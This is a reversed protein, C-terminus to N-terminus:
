RKEVREMLKKDEARYQSLCNSVTKSDRYIEWFAVARVTREPEQLRVIRGIEGELLAAYPLNWRLQRPNTQMGRMWEIMAMRDFRMPQRYGYLADLLRIFSDPSLLEGWAKDFHIPIDYAACLKQITQMKWYSNSNSAIAKAIEALTFLPRDCFPLLMAHLWRIAAPSPLSIQEKNKKYYKLHGAEVLQHVRKASFDGEWAYEGRLLRSMEAVTVWPQRKAM